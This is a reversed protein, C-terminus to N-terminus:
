RVWGSSPRCTHWTDGMKFTPRMNPFCRCHRSDARTCTLRIIDPSTGTVYTIPVLRPKASIDTEGVVVHTVAANAPDLIVYQSRGCAGDACEVNVGTAVDMTM